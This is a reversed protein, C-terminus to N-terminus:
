LSEIFGKLENEGITKLGCHSAMEIIVDCAFEVGGLHHDRLKKILGLIEPGNAAEVSASAIQLTEELDVGLLYAAYLSRDLNQNLYIM